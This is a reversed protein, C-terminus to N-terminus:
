QLYLSGMPPGTHFGPVQSSLLTWLLCSKPRAPHHSTPPPHHSSARAYCGRQSQSQGPATPKTCSWHTPAHPLSSVQLELAQQLQLRHEQWAEELSNLEQDLGALAQSIDATSPHRAALLRQGTSRALSISDTRSDLEAQLLVPSLDWLRLGEASSFAM